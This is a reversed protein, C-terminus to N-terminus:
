RVIKNIRPQVFFIGIPFFWIACFTSLVSHTGFHHNTEFRVLNKAVFFILYFMLIIALLHLPIQWVPFSDSNAFSDYFLFSPYILLYIFGAKFTNIDFKSTLENTYVRIGVYFLWLNYILISWFVGILYWLSNLDITGVIIPPLLM